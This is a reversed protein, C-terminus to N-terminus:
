TLRPSISLGIGDRGDQSHGHCKQISISVQRVPTAGGVFTPLITTLYIGANKLNAIKSPKDLFFPQVLTFFIEDWSLFDLLKFM